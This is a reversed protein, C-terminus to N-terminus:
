GLVQLIVNKAADLSQQQLGTMISTLDEFPPAETKPTQVNMDKKRRRRRKKGEKKEM